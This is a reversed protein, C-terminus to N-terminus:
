SYLHCIHRFTLKKIEVPIKLSLDSIVDRSKNLFDVFRKDSSIQHIKKTDHTVLKKGGTLLKKGGGGM